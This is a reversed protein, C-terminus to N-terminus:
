PRTTSPNAEINLSGHHSLKALFLKNANKLNKKM